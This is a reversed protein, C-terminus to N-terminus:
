KKLVLSQPSYYAFDVRLEKPGEAAAMGSFLVSTAWLASTVRRFITRMIEKSYLLFIHM